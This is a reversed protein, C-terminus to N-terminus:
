FEEPTGDKGEPAPSSLINLAHLVAARLPPLDGKITNWVIEDDIRHYAHRLLNGMDCYSRWDPGLFKPGDKPGLRYAAETLIQIQREVASKTKLDGRYTELDTDGLFTNILDISEQIDRLHTQVDRFPL